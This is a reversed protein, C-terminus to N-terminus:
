TRRSGAMLLWSQEDKKYLVYVIVEASNNDAGTCMRKAYFSLIADRHEM